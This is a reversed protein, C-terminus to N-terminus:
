MVQMLEHWGVAEGLAYLAAALGGLLTWRLLTVSRQFRRERSPDDILSLLFNVRRPMTSHQWARMWGLFGRVMQVLSRGRPEDQHNVQGVRELARVFTRVGTPCLGTAREPYVTAANHGTCHPDGCSVARCGYVDAQRECRRSLYGFVLFIYAALVAVSPLALWDKSWQPLTVGTAYMRQILFLFLAALVIMSLGLFAAYLWIHGHKAHGIEHGLVADLEDDPLDDLIRDTFVVYRVRPLLGVILANAAAGHTPWLLLDACRFHLREALAEFRTRHAGAPMSKLGLLPRMVLPMFLVMVPVVAVSGVRYADTRTLEPAFRALTQQTAFLVVPLMVMLAFQRFQHFVYGARTWFPRSVPGLATTSHILREADFYITWAALQIAFYPAPVLLEAFPALPPDGRYVYWGWGFVLVCAAALGLNVFLLLRRLRAYGEVVEVKRSPSGRLAHVVWTRVAFALLASLAVAALTLGVAAREGSGVLPEPWPVPACAAVLAFVLLIPM